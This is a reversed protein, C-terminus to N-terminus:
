AILVQKKALIEMHKKEMEGFAELMDHYGPWTEEAAILMREILREQIKRNRELLQLETPNKGLPSMDFMVEGLLQQLETSAEVTAVLPKAPKKLGAM